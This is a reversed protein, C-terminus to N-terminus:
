FGSLFAGAIVGLCFGVVGGLLLADRLEVEPSRRTGAM